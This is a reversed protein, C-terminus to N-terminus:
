EATVSEPELTPILYALLSLADVVTMSQAPLATANKVEPLVSFDAFLLATETPIGFQKQITEAWLVEDAAPDDSVPIDNYIDNLKQGLKRAGVILGKSLRMCLMHTDNIENIQDQTM